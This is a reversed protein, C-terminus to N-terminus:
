RFTDASCGASDLFDSGGAFDGTATGVERVQLKL